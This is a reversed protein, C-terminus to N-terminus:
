VDHFAFLNFFYILHKVVAVSTKGHSIIFNCNKFGDLFTKLHFLLLLTEKLSEVVESSARIM